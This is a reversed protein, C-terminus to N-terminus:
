RPTIKTVTIRFHEGNIIAVFGMHGERPGRVESVYDTERGVGWTNWGLLQYVCFTAVDACTPPEVKRLRRKAM